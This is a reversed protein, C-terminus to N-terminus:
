ASYDFYHKNSTISDPSVHEMRVLWAQNLIACGSIAKWGITGFQNLPDKAGSSGIPKIITMIGKKGRVTTTAYADMGMVLTQEVIQTENGADVLAQYGADTPGTFVTSGALTSADGVFEVGEDNDSEVFRIDKISGVEKDSIRKGYDSYDEVDKWGALGRLDETSYISCVGIYASRIPTTGVKNTGSIVGHFKKAGQAKLKLITDKIDTATILTANKIVDVRSTEAGAYVVNSGGRLADRRVTEMSLSAQDGLISLFDSQIKRFDYLDLEDNYELYDGYHGVEYQVEERVIKVPQKVTGTYEALPTTTPLINKYRMAFGKKTNSNAPVEKSQGYKDYITALVVRELLTQDYVALLKDSVFDGKTMNAM